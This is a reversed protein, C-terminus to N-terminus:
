TLLLNDSLCNEEPSIELSFITLPCNDKPYNDPLLLGPVIMWPCNDPHWNEKPVVIRPLLQGPPLKGRPCNDEYAITRLPVIIRLGIIWPTIKRSPLQGSVTIFENQKTKDKLMHYEENVNIPTQFGIEQNQFM